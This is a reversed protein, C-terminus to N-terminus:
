NGILKFWDSMPYLVLAAASIALGYPIGNKNDHLRLLWEQGNLSRPLVVLSSRFWLLGITLICGLLAVLFLFEALVPSFGFWLGVASILKVDGGGMWGAAFFAFCPLFVVVFGLGHMAWGTLAMGQATALFVFGIILLISVRNAIKMTFLDSAGAFAVLMPFFVLVAAEIM